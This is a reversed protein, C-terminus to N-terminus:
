GIVELSRIVANSTKKDALFDEFAMGAIFTAVDEIANSIDEIHDSIFRKESM